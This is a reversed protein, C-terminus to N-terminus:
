LKKDAVGNTSSLGEVGVDNLVAKVPWAYSYEIQPSDEPTTLFEVLAM